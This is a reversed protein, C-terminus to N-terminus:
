CGRGRGDELGLRLCSTAGGPLAVNLRGQPFAEKDGEGQLGAGLGSEATPADYVLGM